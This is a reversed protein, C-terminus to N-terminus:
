PELSTIALDYSAPETIVPAIASVALAASRGDGLNEVTFTVSGNDDVVPRQVDTLLNDEFLLLQILWNQQLRGNTLLWGEGVWGEPGAEFDTHYDLAPIRIDDVFWGSTNVADDTVYEFRLWVEQGAYPSLDFRETLWQPESGTVTSIGTYGHGFSNGAPNESTTQQGQLVDWKQGDVSALVYGYDYADEIDWWMDVEMQLAESREVDRLDFLRTLRSDSDDGRNGWWAFTGSAPVTSALTNSTQGQFSIKTDGQGELLYYDTGYNDVTLDALKIPTDTYAEVVAPPPQEISQYGYVGPLGLANPDDAYNAVVWDAFLSDFNQPLGAERLVADVGSSGNAPHAVLARTMESGFRQAFYNMFLYSSGYHEANGNNIEDWTNLQTDPNAAFAGAFITDPEYGAVDQAFESLGENVWTEENRDNYWHIMHQFEHALLTEYYTYNRSANLWSLNVYFMEKENSFNNALRSYEDASSYYGAIGTGLGNTHLIHLRTDNDVGPNWESGFFEVQKAYTDASFHDVAASVADLDFPEDVQAWVYAVDTMYVLEAEAAFNRNADVDHVQFELLDGLSYQPVEDNVVVPITDVDPDLRLALERLDRVPVVVRALQEETSLGFLEQSPYSTSTPLPTLSAPVPAAIEDPAGGKPTTTAIPRLGRPLGEEGAGGFGCGGLLSVAGLILVVSCFNRLWGNRHHCRRLDLRKTLQM